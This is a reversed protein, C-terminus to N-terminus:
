WGPADDSAQEDSNGKPGGQRDNNDTNMMAEEEEDSAREDYPYPRPGAPRTELWWCPRVPELVLVAWRTSWAHSFTSFFFLILSSSSSFLFRRVLLILKFHSHTDPCARMSAGTTKAALTSTASDPAELPALVGDEETM